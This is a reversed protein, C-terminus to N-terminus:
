INNHLGSYKAKEFASQLINLREPTLMGNCKRHVKYICAVIAIYVELLM